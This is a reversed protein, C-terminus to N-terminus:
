VPIILPTATIFVTTDGINTKIHAPISLFGEHPNGHIDYFECGEFRYRVQTSSEPKVTLNEIDTLRVAVKDFPEDIIIDRVELENTTSFNAILISGEPKDCRTITGYPIGMAELGQDFAYGTIVITDYKIPDLDPGEAADSEVLIYCRRLTPSTSSPTFVINNIQYTSTPLPPDQLKILFMTNLVEDFEFDQPHGM